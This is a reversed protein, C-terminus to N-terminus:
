EFGRSALTSGITVGRQLVRHILPVLAHFPAMFKSPYGVGVGRTKQVAVIHRTETILMPVAAFTMTMFIRVYQPLFSFASIIKSLSIRRTYLYVLQAISALKAATMIGTGIRELPDSSSSILLQLLVLVSCILTFVRIRAITAHRSDKLFSLLYIVVCIAIASLFHDIRIIFINAALLIVLSIHIHM